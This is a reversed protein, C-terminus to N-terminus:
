AGGILADIAEDIAKYACLAPGPEARWEAIAEVFDGWLGLREDAPIDPRVDALLDALDTDNVAGAAHLEAFQEARHRLLERELPRILVDIARAALTDPRSM